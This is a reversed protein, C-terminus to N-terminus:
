RRLGDSFTTKLQAGEIYDDDETAEQYDDDSNRKTIMNVLMWNNMTMTIM